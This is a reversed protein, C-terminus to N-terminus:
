DKQEHKIATRTLFPVFAEFLKSLSTNIKNTAVTKECFGNRWNAFSTLIKKVMDNKRGPLFM